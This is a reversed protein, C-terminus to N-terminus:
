WDAHLRDLCMYASDFACSKDKSKLMQKTLAFRLNLDYNVTTQILRKVNGM